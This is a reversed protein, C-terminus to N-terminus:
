YLRTIFHLNHVEFQHVFHVSIFTGEYFFQVLFFFTHGFLIKCLSKSVLRGGMLFIIIIGFQNGSDTIMYTDLQQQLQKNKESLQRMKAQCVKLECTM